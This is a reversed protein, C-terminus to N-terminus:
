SVPAKKQGVMRRCLQQLLVAALTVCLFDVLNMVLPALTGSLAERLKEGLWEQVCYFELSMKGYFGLFAGLPRFLAKGELLSFLRGLLCCGSVAMLFNPLACNSMPVLLYMERYTTLYALFFGLFFVLLCGLWGAKSFSLQKERALWGAWTGALFVPIRNTFLYLDWRPGHRLLVSLALWVALLGAALLAKHRSREWLSRYLPFVLYLLLIAPVFWLFSYLSTFLFHWGTVNKWFLEWGWGDLLMVALATILYPLYVRGLRRRYFALPSQAQRSFMLGMGSLFFFLDVGTFGFDQVVTEALTLVPIGELVPNWEHFVWIWLAAFGMIQSRHASVPGLVNSREM